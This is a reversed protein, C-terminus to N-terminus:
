TEDKFHEFKILDKKKNKQQKIAKAASIGERLMKMFEHVSQSFEIPKKFNSFRMASYSLRTLEQDCICDLLIYFKYFHQWFKTLNIYILIKWGLAYMLIRTENLM